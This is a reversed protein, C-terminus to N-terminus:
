RSTKFLQCVLDKMFDEQSLIWGVSIAPFSGWRKDSGFRSSDEYRLVVSLMYKNMLSYNIRGFFAALKDNRKTSGMNAYSTGKTTGTENGFNNYKFTNTSYYPTIRL